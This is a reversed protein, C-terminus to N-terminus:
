IKPCEPIWQGDETRTFDSFIAPYRASVIHGVEDFVLRMEEEAGLATRLELVHRLNRLNSTWLISTALGMPAFRRMASTIFKKMPFDAAPDDLRFREALWRQFHEMTALLAAGREVVEADGALASPMWFPIRDLRVYRLSEQSIATGARHRVLEHTFVRSVNAFIFSVSAHEFVSGHRQQIVNGLYAANGERVKTVNANLGPRWSRYCVRGAAEVLQEADSQADTSWGGAGITELYTKLAPAIVATEAVLFVQPTVTSAAPRPAAATPTASYEHEVMM